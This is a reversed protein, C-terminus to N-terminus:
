NNNLLQFDKTSCTGGTYSAAAATSTGSDGSNELCANLAYGTGVVTYTYPTTANHNPDTPIAKMIPTGTSGDSL